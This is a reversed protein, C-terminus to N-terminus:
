PVQSSQVDCTAPDFVVFEGRLAFSGPNFVTTDEYVTSFAHATDDAFLLADPAPSLCLAHDFEWQVPALNLALPSLHAQDLLTKTLHDTPALASPSALDDDYHSPLLRASLRRFKKLANDRHFVIDNGTPGRIRCPSTANTLVCADKTKTKLKDICPELLKRPLPARPLVGRPTGAVPDRVGPVIVIDIMSALPVGDIDWESSCLLAGLDAFRARLDRFASAAAAATPSAFDGVLALLLRHPPQQNYTQAHAALTAYRRVHPAILGDILARLRPLTAPLDLHPEAVVVWPVQASATLDRPPRPEPPPHGLQRVRFVKNEVVGEAVVIMGEAFYGNFAAAETLDCRVRGHLDELFVGEDLVVLMGLVCVVTGTLGQGAADVRSVGPLNRAVRQWTLEYRRRFAASREGRRADKFATVVTQEEVEIKMDETALRVTDADVMTSSGDNLRVKVAEILAPLDDFSAMARAADARVYLGRRKCERVVERLM